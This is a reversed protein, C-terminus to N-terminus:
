ARSVVASITGTSSSFFDSVQQTLLGSTRTQLLSGAASGSVSASSPPTSTQRLKAVAAHLQQGLNGYAAKYDDVTDTSSRVMKLVPPLLKQSYLVLCRGDFILYFRTSNLSRPFSM